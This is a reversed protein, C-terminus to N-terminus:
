GARRPPGQPPPLHLVGTLSDIALAVVGPDDLASGRRIAAEFSGTGLQHTLAEVAAHLREAEAGFTPPATPSTTTAGYLVAAPEDAGVRVLLEILNRLTIWQQTWNGHRHWHEIAELYSRLAQDPQGHRGRLSTASLLAVGALFVNGASAAINLSEDLLDLAQDPDRELLAEGRAYLAWGLASPNRSAIALQHVEEALVLATDLDGAYASSLGQGVLRYVLADDDGVLRSLRAAEGYADVAETLRGRSGWVDALVEHPLARAPDDPRASAALGAEAHRVAGDLDGRRWAGVGASGHVVPLLPHGRASTMEAAAGAWSLIEDSAQHAAFRHLAASLRLALPADGHQRCWAHAARLNDLEAGLVAVWTAEDPGRLGADAREALEVLYEAHRCQVTTTEGREALRAVGYQRMTELMRYRGPWASTPTVVMSKDILSALVDVVRDAAVGNGPCVATVHELTWGGAFVSLRAFVLREPEDLLEYSWDVVAQLTRHRQHDLRRGGGLVAFREGLRMALDSATVAQMRAAALEIALPLGDLDRCITAVAAATRDDLAFDPRVSRARDVFLAGAATALVDGPATATADPIPLPPVPWVQEGDVTLRQRSTAIVTLDPCGRTLTHLLAAVGDLVHECNDVVLLLQRGRLSDVLAEEVTRGQAVHIGLVAAVVYPVADASGVSALEAIWAGDAYRGALDSAVRLALRSKGIGGAGVLTVLRAREVAEALDACERERGFFASLESPLNGSVAPPAASEVVMRPPADHLIRLELRRMEPSPEIGVEEILMTRYAHYLRLAEVQRGEGALATMLQAYPRETLPRRAVVGELHGVAEATRDLRLLLDVRDSVATARLEELRVAEARAVDHDAFEAYAPGRWLALAQDLLELAGLPDAVRVQAARAVMNEFRLADVSGGDVDLVYGPPRTLIPGSGDPNRLRRRLRAVYTQLSNRASPPPEDGWLVEILRDASVVSNANVVLATLLAREMRSGIAAVPEARVDLPGLVRFEM